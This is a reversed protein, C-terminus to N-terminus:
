SQPMLPKRAVRYDLPAYHKYIIAPSNGLIAAVQENTIGRELLEVATTQRYMHPHGDVKALELLKTFAVQWTSILSKVKGEGSWFYYPSGITM